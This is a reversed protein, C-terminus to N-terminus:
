DVTEAEVSEARRAACTAPSAVLEAWWPSLAIPSTTRVISCSVPAEIGSFELPQVAAGEAFLATAATEVLNM